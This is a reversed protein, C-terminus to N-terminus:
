WDREIYDADLCGEQSRNPPAYDDGSMDTTAIVFFKPLTYVIPEVAELLLSIQELEDDSVEIKDAEEGASAQIDDDPFVIITKHDSDCFVIRIYRSDFMLTDTRGLSVLIRGESTEFNSCTQGKMAEQIRAFIGEM